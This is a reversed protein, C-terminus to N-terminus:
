LDRRRFSLWSGASFLAMYLVAVISNARAPLQLPLGMDRMRQMMEASGEGADPSMLTELVKTPLYATAEQVVGGERAMLFMIPAQAFLFLFALALGAGSSSSVTGFFLAITAVFLLYLLLHSLLSADTAAILASTPPDPLTRNLLAFVLTILIGGTWLLLTFGFVLALKGTFYETRSLGDIVNQRETRWTREAATLLVITVLVILMAFSSLGTFIKWLSERQAHGNRSAFYHSMGFGILLMAFFSLTAAWFALRRRTKLWEVAILTGIKM